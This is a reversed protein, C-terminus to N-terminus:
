EYLRPCYEAVDPPVWYAAPLLAQVFGHKTLFEVVGLDKVKKRERNLADLDLDDANRLDANGSLQKAVREGIESPSPHYKFKPDNNWEHVAKLALKACLLLEPDSTLTELRQVPM